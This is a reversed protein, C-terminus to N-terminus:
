KSIDEPSRYRTLKKLWRRRFYESAVVMIVILGNLAGILASPIQLVRQIKNAGMLLGGLLFSAPVTGLPNLHGFLAAVIGNFGASGTFGTTTGDTFMRHHVGMVEIAGGLGILAGSLLFALIMIWNVNMGSARAARANRGVTRIQFGITTRKILIYVLIALGVGILAGIHFRTPPFRLLDAHRTLRATQPIFSGLQKQLPDMIIERLLFNMGYVAIYNMMITSLFENVKFWAKLIGAIGAWIAGGLLGMILAIPILLWAPWGPYALCIITSALSGLVFQGEGGINLVGARFAICIGLAVFLIPTGKVVTDALAYTSGFAGQYLGIFAEWPDRGLLLILVAMILMAVAFAALPTLNILFRITALRGNKM